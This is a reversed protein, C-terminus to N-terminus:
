SINTIVCSKVREGSNTWAGLQAFISFDSVKNFSFFGNYTVATFDIVEAIDTIGLQPCVDVDTCAGNGAVIVADIFM